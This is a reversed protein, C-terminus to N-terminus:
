VTGGLEKAVEKLTEIAYSLDEMPINLAPLM